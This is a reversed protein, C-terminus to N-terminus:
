FRSTKNITRIGPKKMLARKRARALSLAPREEMMRKAFADAIPIPRGETLLNRYREIDAASIQEIRKDGFYPRLYCDILSQYSRRMTARIKVKSELFRDALQSLTLREAKPTYSWREIEDLRRKLM